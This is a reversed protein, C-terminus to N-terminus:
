QLVPLTRFLFDVRQHIQVDLVQDLFAVVENLVVYPEDLDTMAFPQRIGYTALDFRSFGGCSM